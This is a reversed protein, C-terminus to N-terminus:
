NTVTVYHTQGEYEFKVQVSGLGDPLTGFAKVYDREEKTLNDYVGMFHDGAAKMIQNQLDQPLDEMNM